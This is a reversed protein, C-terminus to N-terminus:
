VVSPPLEQDTSLMGPAPAISRRPTWPRLAFTAWTAAVAPRIQRVVSPPREQDSRYWDVSVVINRSAM